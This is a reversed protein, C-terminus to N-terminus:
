MTRCANIEPHIFKYGVKHLLKTEEFQQMLSVFNNSNSKFYFIILIHFIHFWDHQSHFFHMDSRENVEINTKISDTSM